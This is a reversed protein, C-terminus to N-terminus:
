RREDAPDSEMACDTAAILAAILPRLCHGCAIAAILAPNRDTEFSGIAHTAVPHVGERDPDDGSWRILTRIADQVEAPVPIKGAEGADEDDDDDDHGHKNQHPADM